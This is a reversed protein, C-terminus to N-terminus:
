ENKVGTINISMKIIKIKMNNKLSIKYLTNYKERLEKKLIGDLFAEKTRMVLMKGSEYKVFFNFYYSQSNHGKLLNDLILPYKPKVELNMLIDIIENHENIKM